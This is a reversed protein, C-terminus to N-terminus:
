RNPSRKNMSQECWGPEDCCPLLRKLLDRMDKICSILTAVSTSNGCVAYLALRVFDNYWHGGLKGSLFAGGLTRRHLDAAMCCWNEKTDKRIQDPLHGKDFLEQPLVHHLQAKQRGGPPCPNPCRSLELLRQYSRDVGEAIRRRQRARETYAAPTYDRQPASRRSFQLPSESPFPPSAFRYKLLFAEQTV